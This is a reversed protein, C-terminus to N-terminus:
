LNSKKPKLNDSSEINGTVESNSSVVKRDSVEVDTEVARSDFKTEKSNTDKIDENKDVANSDIGTLTISSEVPRPDTDRKSKFFSATNFDTDHSVY